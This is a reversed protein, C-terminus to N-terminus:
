GSFILLNDFKSHYFILFEDYRQFNFAEIQIMDSVNTFKNEIIKIKQYNKTIKKGDIILYKNQNFNIMSEIMYFSIQYNKDLDTDLVM